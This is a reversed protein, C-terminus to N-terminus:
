LKIKPNPAMAPGWVAHPLGGPRGPGGPSAAWTRCALGGAGGDEEGGLNVAAGDGKTVEAAAARAM